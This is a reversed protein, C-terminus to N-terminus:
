WDWKMLFRSQENTRRWTKCDAKDAAVRVWGCFSWITWCRDVDDSRDQGLLELWGHTLIKMVGSTLCLCSKVDHKFFVRRLTILRTWAKGMCERLTTFERVDMLLYVHGWDHGCHGSGSVYGTTSVMVTTLSVHETVLIDSGTSYGYSVQLVFLDGHGHLVSEDHETVPTGLMQQWGCQWSLTCACVYRGESWTLFNECYSVRLQVDSRVAGVSFIMIKLLLLLLLEDTTLMLVVYHVKDAGFEDEILVRRSWTRSRLTRESGSSRWPTSPDRWDSQVRGCWSPPGRVGWWRCRKTKKHTIVNLESRDSRNVDANWQWGKLDSMELVAVGM